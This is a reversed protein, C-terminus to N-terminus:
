RGIAQAYAEVWREQERTEVAGSRAARVREIAHTPEHGLAVLCAAAVTGTRGVGGRCHIVVTRGARAAELIQGILECFQPMEDHRPAHVDRIPFRVVSIGCAPAREFLDEIQLWRYEADEMLSVLLDCSYEGRLCALDADLDRVWRGDIKKGPAITLGIRGPLSTDRPDLFDVYIPNAM